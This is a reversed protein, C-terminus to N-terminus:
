AVLEEVVPVTAQAIAADLADRLEVAREVSLITTAVAHERMSLSVSLIGGQWATV